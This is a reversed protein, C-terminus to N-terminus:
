RLLPSSPRGGALCDTAWYEPPVHTTQTAQYWQAADLGDARSGGLAIALEPLAWMAVCETEAEDRHGVLHALEHVIVHVGFRAEPDDPDEVWRLAQRCIPLGVHATTGGIMAYGHVARPNAAEDWVRRCHVELDNRGSIQQVADTLQRDLHAAYVENGIAFLALAAAIVQLLVTWPSPRHFRRLAMRDAAASRKRRTPAEDFLEGILEPTDPAAM